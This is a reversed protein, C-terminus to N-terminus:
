DLISDLHFTKNLMIEVLFVIILIIFVIEFSTM